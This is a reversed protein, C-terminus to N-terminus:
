QVAAAELAEAYLAGPAVTLLQCAILNTPNYYAGDCTLLVGVAVTAASAGPAVRVTLELHHVNDRALTEPRNARPMYDRERCLPCM